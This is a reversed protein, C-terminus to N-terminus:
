LFMNRDNVLLEDIHYIKLLCSKIDTLYFRFIVLIRRNKLLCMIKIEKHKMICVPPRKWELTDRNYRNGMAVSLPFQEDTYLQGLPVNPRTEQDYEEPRSRFDVRKEFQGLENQIYTGGVDLINM